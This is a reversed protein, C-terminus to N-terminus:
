WVVGFLLLGGCHTDEESNVVDARQQEEDRGNEEEDGGNGRGDDVAQRKEVDLEVAAEVCVAHGKTGKTVALHVLLNCWQKQARM